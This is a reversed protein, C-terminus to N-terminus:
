RERGEVAVSHIALDDIVSEQDGGAKLCMLYPQQSRCFDTQYIAPGQAAVLLFSFMRKALANCPMSAM